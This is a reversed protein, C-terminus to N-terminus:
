RALFSALQKRCLVLRSGRGNVKGCTSLLSWFFLFFLALNAGPRRVTRRRSPPRRTASPTGTLHAPSLCQPSSLQSGHPSLPTWTRAAWRVTMRCPSLPPLPPHPNPPFSSLSRCMNLLFQVTCRLDLCPFSPNLGALRCFFQRHSLFYPSLRWM